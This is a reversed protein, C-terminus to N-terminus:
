DFSISLAKSHELSLQLAAIEKLIRDNVKNRVLDAAVNVACSFGYADTGGHSKVAVGQLGLFQAGNFRRPDLRKKFSEFVPRLFLAQIKRLLNRNVEERLVTACLKATGEATKLAVNGTFGDTVVVDCIRTFIGDGEVYGKFNEVCATSLIINQAEKLTATGKLAESGINLLACSPNEIGQVCRSFAQGMVCFQVLVEASVDVNAGLDLMTVGKGDATPLLTTIAPRTIGPLTKLILKSLVMYAGTNGSSVVGDAAGTSVAEIARRMSSDKFERIAARPETDGTIIERCDIFQDNPGLFSGDLYPACSGRHGFVLFQVDVLKAKLFKLGEFVIHPASDGGMADIALTISM